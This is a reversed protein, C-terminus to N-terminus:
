PLVVDVWVLRHRSAKAVMEYLPDDSLPWVVGAGAVDLRADPLVYDVRLNGPRPDPWDTTDLAPDGSHGPNAAVRAGASGALSDQLRPDALLAHIAEHRGEGDAPDLNANGLIVVPAAPPDFPLDGDLLRQWFAIEDHNRRGNLDEPGDYVPTTANFALLHIPGSPLSVPVDWHGASSLRQVAHAEPTPFPVGDVEPPIAGPLDSWLFSSFDRVPGLPYRSLVAMGGAGTFSGYGQADRAEGTKGNGDMDLGTEVGANPAAAFRHEYAVGAGALAAVLADLAHGEHDHDVGTLLLVDPAAEAIVAIVADIQEDGGLIDALLLGPGQRGLEAHFTALRVSDSFGGTTSALLFILFLAPLRGM